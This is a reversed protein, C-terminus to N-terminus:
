REDSRGGWNGFIKEVEEKLSNCFTVENRLLEDVSKNKLLNEVIGFSKDLCYEKVKDEFAHNEEITAPNTFTLETEKKLLFRLERDRKANEHGERFFTMILTFLFESLYLILFGKEGHTDLFQILNEEEDTKSRLPRM